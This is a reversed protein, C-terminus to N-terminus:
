RVAGRSNFVVSSSFRRLLLKEGEVAAFIVAAISACLLLDLAPLPATSFVRQLPPLYVLALQLAVSVAVAAALQPNSWIGIRLLSQTESRIALVHAM